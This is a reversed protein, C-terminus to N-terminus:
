IEKGNVTVNEYGIEKMEKVLKDAEDPLCLQYIRRGIPHDGEVLISKEKKIRLESQVDEDKALIYILEIEINTLKKYDIGLLLTYLNIKSKKIM